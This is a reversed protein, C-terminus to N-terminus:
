YGAVGSRLKFTVPDLLAALAGPALLVNGTGTTPYSVTRAKDHEIVNGNWEVLTAYSLLSATGPGTSGDGMIGYEGAHLVNRSFTLPTMVKPRNSSKDWQLFRGKVGPMTNNTVVLAQQVGNIVMIGGPADAFLNHDITIRQTQQSAASDDYGLINVAFGDRNNTLVNGRLTVEDVVCQPCKGGQNRV